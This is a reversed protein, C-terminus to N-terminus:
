WGLSSPAVEGMEAIVEAVIKEIRGREDGSAFLRCFKREKKEKDALEARGGATFQEMSDKRKKVEKKIVKIADDDSLRDRKQWLLRKM